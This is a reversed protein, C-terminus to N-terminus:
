RMTKYSWCYDHRQNHLAISVKDKLLIEIVTTRVINKSFRFIRICSTLKGLEIWNSVQKVIGSIITMLNINKYVQISRINMVYMIHAYTIARTMNGNAMRISQSFHIYFPNVAICSLTHYSSLTPCCGNSIITGECLLIHAKELAVTLICKSWFIKTVSTIRNTQLRTSIKINTTSFCTKYINVAVCVCYASACIRIRVKRLLKRTRHYLTCTIVHTIPMSLQCFVFVEGLAKRYRARYLCLLCRGGLCVTLSNM